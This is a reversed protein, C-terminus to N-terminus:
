CTTHVGLRDPVTVLQCHDAGPPFGVDPVSAENAVRKPVAPAFDIVRRAHLPMSHAFPVCDIVTSEGVVGDGVDVGVPPAGSITLMLQGASIMGGTVMEQDAVTVPITM